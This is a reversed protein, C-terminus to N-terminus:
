HRLTALMRRTVVLRRVVPAFAGGGATIRYVTARLRFQARFKGSRLVRPHSVVRWVGRERRWVEVPGATRPLLEGGLLHRGLVEVRLQPRVAVSVGTGSAGAIRLRFATSAHPEVSVVSRGDVHRLTRWAGNRSQEQLV